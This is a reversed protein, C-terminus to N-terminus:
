KHIIMLSFYPYEKHAFQSIDSSYYENDTGVNEFYHYSYEPHESVCVHVADRCACLKMIVAVYGKTIIDSLESASVIGPIVMLREEQKVIHLGALAGAAIFAPIGAIRRVQYGNETLKDYVYQISSYFGADGEAVVSINRDDRYSQSIEDYLRDYSQMAASRDRGMPLLFLCVKTESIGLEKVIDAARSNVSGSETKTAPCYIIDSEQLRKLGKLTILEPDGPGLSVFYIPRIDM